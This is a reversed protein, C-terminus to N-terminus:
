STSKTPQVVPDGERAFGLRGEFNALYGGRSPSPQWRRFLAEPPVLGSVRVAPAEVSRPDGRLAEPIHPSKRRAGPANVEGGALSPGRSAHATSNLEPSCHAGKTRRPAPRSSCSTGTGSRSEHILRFCSAGVSDPSKAPHQRPKPRGGLHRESDMGVYQPM